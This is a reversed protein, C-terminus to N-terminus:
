EKGLLHKARLYDAMARRLAFTEWCRGMSTWTPILMPTQKRYDAYGEFMRDFIFRDEIWVWLVDMALWIPAAILALRSGSALVLGAMGVAYWLVGPHRTLAYTGERVLRSPDTRLSYTQVLPIEFFLSYFLLAFGCVLLIWGLSHMWARAHIKEPSLAVALHAYVLLVSLALWSFMKPYPLKRLLAYDFFIGLLFALVGLVIIM